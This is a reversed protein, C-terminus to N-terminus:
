GTTHLYKHNDSAPTKYSDANKAYLTTGGSRLPGGTEGCGGNDAGRGGRYRRHPILHLVHDELSYNTIKTALDEENQNCPKELSYKIDRVTLTEM